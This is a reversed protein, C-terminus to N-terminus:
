DRNKENEWSSLYLEMHQATEEAIKAGNQYDKTEYFKLFSGYGFPNRNSISNERLINQAEFIAEGTYDSAFDVMEFIMEAIDRYPSGKANKKMNKLTNLELNHIYNTLDWIVKGQEDVVNKFGNNGKAGLKVIDLDYLFRGIGFHVAARKFADSTQGKEKDQNSETGCDIKYFKKGMYEATIKCYLVGNPKLEYDNTWGGVGFCDTLRDRVQRADIYAVCTATTVSKNFSQVRWKYLIPAELKKRLEDWSQTPNLADEM